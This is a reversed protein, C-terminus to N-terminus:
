AIDFLVIEREELLDSGTGDVQAILVYDGCHEGIPETTFRRRVKAGHAFNFYMAASEDELQQLCCFEEGGGALRRVKYSPLM